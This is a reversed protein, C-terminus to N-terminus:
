ILAAGSKINILKAIMQTKTNIAYIYNLEKDPEIVYVPIGDYFCIKRDSKVSEAQYSVKSAYAGLRNFTDTSINSISRRVTKTTAIHSPAVAHFLRDLNSLTLPKHQNDITLDFDDASLKLAILDILEKEM